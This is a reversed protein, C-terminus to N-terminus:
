SLRIIKANPHNRRIENIDQKPPKFFAKEKEQRFNEILEDLCEQYSKCLSAKSFSIGPIEGNYFLGSKEIYAYVSNYNQFTSGHIPDVVEEIYNNHQINGGFSQQNNYQGKSQNYHENESTYGCYPCSLTQQNSLGEMKAGCSQCKQTVKVANQNNIKKALDYVNEFFNKFM